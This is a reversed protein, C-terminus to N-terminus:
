RNAGRQHKRHVAEVADLVAASFGDTAAHNRMKLQHRPRPGGGDRVADLAVTRFFPVVAVRQDIRDGTPKM